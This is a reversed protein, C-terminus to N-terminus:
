CATYYIKSKKFIKSANITGIVKSGNDKMNNNNNKKKKLSLKWSIIKM